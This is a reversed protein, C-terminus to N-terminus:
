NRAQVRRTTREYAAVLRKFEHSSRSGEPSTDPHLLLARGHYAQKVDGMTLESLSRGQLGLTRLDELSAAGSFPPPPPTSHGHRESQSSRRRSSHQHHDQGGQQGTSARGGSPHRREHFGNGPSRFTHYRHGSRGLAVHELFRWFGSGPGGDRSIVVLVVMPALLAGGVGVLVGTLLINRATRGSGDADGM